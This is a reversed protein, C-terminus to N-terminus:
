QQPEARFSRLSLCLCLCLIWGFKFNEVVAVAAFPGSKIMAISSPHLPRSPDIQFNCTARILGRGEAGRPPEGLALFNLSVRAGITRTRRVQDCMARSAPNSFARGMLKGLKVFGANQVCNEGNKRM